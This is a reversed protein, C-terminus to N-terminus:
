FLQINKDLSCDGEPWKYRPYRYSKTQVIKIIDPLNQKFESRIKLFSEDYVIDIQSGFDPATALYFFSWSKTSPIPSLIMRIM